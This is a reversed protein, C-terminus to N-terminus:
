NVELVINDILWMCLHVEDKVVSEMLDCSDLHVFDCIPEDWVTPTNLVLHSSM